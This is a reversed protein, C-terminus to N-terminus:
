IHHNGEKDFELLMKEYDNVCGHRSFRSLLLSRGNEGMTKLDCPNNKLTLVAEMLAVPNDPLVLVGCKYYNVIEEIESGAPAVALIPRSSAMINFIKSPLSSQASECNLTVLNVDAAAMMEAFVERPQFPLFLINLLGKQTAEEILSAKKVGEGVIVFRVERDHKLLNAATLVDELCSTLGLNGAYMVVFADTLGYKERFGNKKPLPQIQDPDAWVPIVSTKASFDGKSSIKKRFQDSIVSIHTARKYLFCEVGYFFAIVYRNRLVGASIAADPYLDEIQLIWPIRWIRSLLWASLGLPLPPSYNILIDPRAALLAGYFASASFTGYNFIRRWFSKHPSIYSWTRIVRVGDLWEVQYVSNRYNPYVRGYPYNPAGTIFTVQHGKKALDTALETILVAASVEEPAYCQAIFM